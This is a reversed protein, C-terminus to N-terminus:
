IVDPECKLYWQGMQKEYWYTVADQIAGKLDREVDDYVLWAPPTGPPFREMDKMTYHITIHRSEGGM